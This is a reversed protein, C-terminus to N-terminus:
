KLLASRIVELNFDNSCETGVKVTSNKRIKGWINEESYLTVCMKAFSEADGVAAGLIDEREDWGLQKILLDTAVVPLGYAAAELIKLPIGASFRTPAIFIRSNEYFSEINEVRGFLKVSDSALAKVKRSNNSGVVHLEVGEIKRQISPFIEHVFWELSDVNPSKDEDLNGVFLINKRQAFKKMTPHVTLAHGLVYANAHGYKKFIECEQQSVSIIVDANRSHKLEKEIMLQLKNESLPRGELEKITKERFSFIAEADYILKTGLLLDPNDDIIHNFFEMNHPRSIFIYEFYGERKKLFEEFRSRGYGLMIEIEPSIDSYATDWQDEAPFNLPLFTVQYGLTVLTNLMFNSRPFGSGFSNHPVRDDIYLLTKTERAASYRAKLINGIDAKFHQKLQKHHIKEFISKHKKQLEIAKESKESSAFEFHVVMANPEYVIRYGKETLRMCYDTEEYYAPLFAEDFGNLEHFLKTKTLLFAGSCYDVNRRFMYEPAFPSEGRGYGLCSGDQWIISGAEQLTGNLLLIKGGVAGIDDSTEFTELAAKLSGKLLQADNNLLLLYESQALKAGQNCAKLFNVNEKNHVIKAGKIRDLLKPTQDTSDNDIVIVEIDIGAKEVISKLCALTLEARNFLVLLISIKPTDSEPFKIVQNSSFFDELESLKIETFEERTLTKKPGIPQRYSALTALDAASFDPNYSKFDEIISMAQDKALIVKGRLLIREILYILSHGVKWRWSQFTNTLAEDLGFLWHRLSKMYEERANIEHLLAQKKHNSADLEAKLTEILQNASNLQIERAESEEKTRELVTLNRYIEKEQAAIDKQPEDIVKDKERELSFLQDRLEELSTKNSEKLAFLESHLLQLSTKDNKLDTLENGLEEIRDEFDRYKALLENTGLSISFLEEQEPIIGKEFDRVLREQNLNLYTQYLANSAKEHFLASDIFSMIETDQPLILGEVKLNKLREYLNSVLSVPDSMLLEYNILVRPLGHSNNLAAVTYAEWLALGFHIPFNNRKHLSQSVQVPNRYVYVIVPNKLQPRWLPLTLSLRPDKVVWPQHDNLSSLIDKIKLALSSQAESSIKGLDFREPMEWSANSAALIEDNLNVVDIREWFGKQNDSKPPMILNEPAIYAGMMNILRSVVSTGSRHNGLVILQM